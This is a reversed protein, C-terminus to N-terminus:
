SYALIFPFVVPCVLDTRYRKALEKLKSEIASDDDPRAGRWVYLLTSVLAGEKARVVIAVSETDYLVHSDTVLSTISRGTVSLVEVTLPHSPAKVASRNEPRTSLLAVHDVHPLRGIPSLPGLNPGPIPAPDPQNMSPGVGDDALARLEPLPSERRPM